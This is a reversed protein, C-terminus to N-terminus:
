DKDILVSYILEPPLPQVHGDAFIFNAKLGHRLSAIQVYPYPNSQDLSARGSLGADVWVMVDTPYNISSITFRSDEEPNTGRTVLRGSGYRGGLFDNAAYTIGPYYHVSPDNKAAPCCIPTKEWLISTLSYDITVSHIYGTYRYPWYGAWWNGIPWPLYVTPALRGNHDDAYMSWGRYMQKLNSQCIIQKAAQRAQSLTPLLLSLLVGIIAVVVLLEILTFCRAKSINPM